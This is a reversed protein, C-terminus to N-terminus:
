KTWGGTCLHMTMGCLLLLATPIADDNFDFAAEHLGACNTGMGLRFLLGPVHELYAGFDESGMSPADLRVVNSAGLLECGVRHYLDFLGEDIAVAPTMADFTVDASLDLAACIDTALSTVEGITRRRVESTLTRVTGSIVGTDAIVNDSNGVHARCLSVVRSDNDLQALAEAIRAVGRLPNNAEHPRAGHGGKGHVTIRLTDCAAMMIGSRCAVAGVPLGPWAHMGIIADPPTPRLVGDDIMARAGRATEEAPQFIFRIRGRLESRMQSLVRAACLLIATHGDHGCSHAFGENQSAYAAGTAETIPLADIDARLAIEPGPQDTVLDAIVGTKAVKERIVLDLSRLEAAILAATESEAFAPEPVRHLRHRISVAYGKQSDVLKKLDVLMADCFVLLRGTKWHRKKSGHHPSFM